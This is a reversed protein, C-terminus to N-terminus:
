YIYAPLEKPAPVVTSAAIYICFPASNLNVNEYRSGKGTRDRIVSESLLIGKPLMPLRSASLPSVVDM